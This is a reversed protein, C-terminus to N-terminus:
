SEEWLFLVANEWDLEDVGHEVAMKEVKKLTSFVINQLAKVEGRFAKALLSDLKADSINVSVDIDKPSELSHVPACFEWEICVPLHVSRSRKLSKLQKLFGAKRVAKVFAKLQKQSADSRRQEEDQMQIRLHRVLEAMENYELRATQECINELESM